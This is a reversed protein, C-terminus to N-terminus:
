PQEGVTLRIVGEVLPNTLTGNVGDTGIIRGNQLVRILVSFSESPQGTPSAIGCQWRIRCGDLTAPTGPVDLIDPKNDRNDNEAPGIRKPNRGDRDFLFFQFTGFQLHGIVIEVQVNGDPALKAIGAL